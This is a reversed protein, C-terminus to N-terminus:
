ESNRLNSDLIQKVMNYSEAANPLNMKSLNETARKKKFYKEIDRDTINHYNLIADVEKSELQGTNELNLLYDIAKDKAIEAGEGTEEDLGASEMIREVVDAYDTPKYVSATSTGKDLLAKLTKYENIGIQTSAQELWQSPNGSAMMQNFLGDIYSDYQAQAQTQQGEVGAKAQIQRLASNEREQILAFEQQFLQDDRAAQAELKFLNDEIEQTRKIMADKAEKSPEGPAIGLIRAAENTVYGRNSVDTWADQTEQRKNILENQKQEFMFMRDSYDQNLGDVYRRYAQEDLANIFNARKYLSDAEDMYRDYGESDLVRYFEAQRLLSNQQDAYQNYAQQQFQPVLRLAEEGTMSSNLIGRENMREMVQQQANNLNPDTSPDYAFPQSIKNMIGGIQTDYQSQYPQRNTIQELIQNVSYPNAKDAENFLMANLGKYENDSILGKSLGTNLKSTMAPDVTTAYPSKYGGQGIANMIDTPTGYHRQGQTTFMSKDIVNGDVLIEKTDNNWDVKHGRKELYDRVGTVAM